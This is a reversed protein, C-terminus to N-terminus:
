RALFIEFTFGSESHISILRPAYSYININTNNNLDNEMFFIAEEKNLHDDM